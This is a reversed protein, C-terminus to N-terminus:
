KPPFRLNDACLFITGELIKCMVSMWSQVQLGVVDKMNVHIPEYWVNEELDVAWHWLPRQEEEEPSKDCSPPIFTDSQGGFWDHSPM